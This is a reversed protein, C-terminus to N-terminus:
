PCEKPACVPFTASELVGPREGGKVLPHGVFGISHGQLRALPLHPNARLPGLAHLPLLERGARRQAPM